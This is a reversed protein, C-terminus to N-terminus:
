RSAGAKGPWEARLAVIEHYTLFIRAAKIAAADILAAGYSYCIASLLHAFLRLLLVGAASCRIPCIPSIHVTENTRYTGDTDPPSTDNQGPAGKEM